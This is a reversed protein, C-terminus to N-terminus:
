FRRLISFVQSVYAGGFLNVHVLLPYLNYIDLRKEWDKDLPSAENYAEYFEPAFGGFLKTMAIDMERHGYYVAPDILCPDGQSTFMFNGSWLDGHLLAPIEKPIIENLKTFLREFARLIARDTLQSDFALALQPQIREEIFFSIWDKHKKNSQKLSGIYNDHDLGFDKATNKHLKALSEGFKIWCKSDASAENIFELVLFEYNEAKAECIVKPIKISQSENLIKLGLSEKYFMAPFKRGDNWKVFFNGESSTIKAATNIDGGAVSQVSFIRVERKFQFTLIEIIKSKIIEPVM